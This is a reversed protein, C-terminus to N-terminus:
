GRKRIVSSLDKAPFPVAVSKNTVPNHLIRRYVVQRIEIFASQKLLKMMQKSTM